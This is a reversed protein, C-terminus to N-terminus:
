PPSSSSSLSLLSPLSSWFQPACFAWGLVSFLLSATRAAVARVAAKVLGGPCGTTGAWWAVLPCDRPGCPLWQRSHDARLGTRCDTGFM